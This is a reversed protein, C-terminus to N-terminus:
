SPFSVMSAFSQLLDAHSPPLHLRTIESLGEQVYHRAAASTGWRGKLLTREMQGTSRFEHTAGGRRLSYPRLNTPLQFFKVLRRFEDRFKQPFHPWFSSQSNGTARRVSVWTSILQLALPDEIVVNEDIARRLGTKTFGLQFVITADGLLIHHVHLNFLEGTRLMGWFAAALSAALALQDEDLAKGLMGYLFSLPLPPAQRPREIRRWIGFLRWSELLHGRYSPCFHHIGSLADSVETIGKGALYQKDIWSAMDADVPGTGAELVPLVRRVALYYRAWTKKTVGRDHLPIGQRRKRRKAELESKDVRPM